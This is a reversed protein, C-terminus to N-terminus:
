PNVACMSVYDINHMYAQSSQTNGEFTNDAPMDHSTVTAGLSGRLPSLEKPFNM